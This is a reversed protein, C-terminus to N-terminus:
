TVSGTSAQPDELQGAQLHLQRSMRRSWEEAHTVLIVTLGEEQHLRQLVDMVSGASLDDLSGTPEDALLLRPRNLLARAIACRQKEGGSLQAPLHKMRDALGVNELLSEARDRVQSPPAPAGDAFAPLLVNELATCQPLMQHLQFVMGIDRTRYRALQEETKDGLEEGDFRIVGGNPRDLGAILHLLTSKGSGSRGTVALSEGQEVTLNLQDLIRLSEHGGPQGYSKECDIMEVLSM